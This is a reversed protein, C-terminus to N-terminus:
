SGVEILFQFNFGEISDKRMVNARLGNWEVGDISIPNGRIIPWLPIDAQLSKSYILTDGKKDELYLGELYIDGSFTIFLKKISVKTHTKGSVYNTLKGVIINQGWPSRIFLVLALFLIFLAIVIWGIIRFVRKWWPRKKKSIKIGQKNLDKTM